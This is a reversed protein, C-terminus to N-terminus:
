LAVKAFKLGSWSSKADSAQQVNALSDIWCMEVRKVKPNEHLKTQIYLLKTSNEKNWWSEPLESTLDPNVNQNLCM